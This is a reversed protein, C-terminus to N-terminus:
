LIRIIANITNIANHGLIPFILNGSLKRLIGVSLSSIVTLYLITIIDFKFDYNETLMVGHAEAFLITIIVFGWGFKVGKFNWKPEFAKDLLWFLIGRFVLEETLGPMTMQFAFTELDFDGGKPFLIMKFIFDFVLFGLFILVGSKVQSKSNTKTTFGIEQRDKKSVSFIVILGFCLSLIKGIWAFKLGIFELDFYLKSLHQIYSDTLFYLVFLGLYKLNVKESKFIALAIFPVIILIWILPTFLSM